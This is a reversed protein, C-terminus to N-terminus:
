ENSQKEKTFVNILNALSFLSMLLGGVLAPAYLVARSIGTAPMANTMGIKIMPFSYYTMMLAFALLLTYRGIDLVKKGKAGLHDYLFELSIHTDKRIGIAMAVYGFWVLTFLTIEESWSTPKNLIYRMAVQLVTLALMITLSGVSFIEMFRDLIRLLKKM